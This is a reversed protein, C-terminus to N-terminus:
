RVLSVQICEALCGIPGNRRASRQASLGASIVGPRGVALRGPRDTRRALGFKNISPARIPDRGLEQGRPISLTKAQAALPSFMRVATKAAQTERPEPCVAQGLLVVHAARGLLAVQAARQVVQAAGVV